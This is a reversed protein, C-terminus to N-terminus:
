QVKAEAEVVTPSPLAPVQASAIMQRKSKQWAKWGELVFSGGICAGGIGLIWKMAKKFSKEDEEQRKAEEKREREERELRDKRAIEERQMNLDLERLKLEHEMQAKRLALDCEADTLARNDPFEKHIHTEMTKKVVQPKKKGEPDGVQVQVVQHQPQQNVNECIDGRNDMVKDDKRKEALIDTVNAAMKLADGVMKGDFEVAM